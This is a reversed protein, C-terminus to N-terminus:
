FTVEDELADVKDLCKTSNADLRKIAAETINQTNVCKYSLEDIENQLNIKVLDIKENTNDKVYSLEAYVKKILPRLIEEVREEDIFKKSNLQGDFDLVKWIEKKKAIKDEDQYDESDESLEASENAEKM